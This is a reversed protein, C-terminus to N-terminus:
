AKYLDLWYVTCIYPTGLNRARSTRRAGSSCSRRTRKRHCAALSGGAAKRSLTFHHLRKGPDGDEIERGKEGTRQRRQDEGLGPGLHDLDLLWAPLLHAAVRRAEPAFARKEGEEVTTLVAEDGIERFRGILGAHELKRAAGIHEDLLEPGADHFTEAEAVFPKAGEIGAEDIARDRTVALVPRLAIARAM